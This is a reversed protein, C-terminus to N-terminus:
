LVNDRMKPFECLSLLLAAFSINERQARVVDKQYM